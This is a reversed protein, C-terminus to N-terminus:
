SQSGDATSGITLGSEIEAENVEATISGDIRHLVLGIIRKDEFDIVKVEYREHDMIAYYSININFDDPLDHIDVIVKKDNVDFFGGYTFNKAAAIYSLDYVFDRSRSSPLVVARRVTIKRTTKSIIGTDFDVTNSTNIYM